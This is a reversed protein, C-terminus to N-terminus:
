KVGVGAIKWKLIDSKFEEEKELIGKVSYHVHSFEIRCNVCKYGHSYGMSFIFREEGTQIM